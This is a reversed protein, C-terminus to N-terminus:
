YIHVAQWAHALHWSLLGKSGSKPTAIMMGMKCTLSCACLDALEHLRVALLRCPLSKFGSWRAGSDAGESGCWGVQVSVAHLHCM